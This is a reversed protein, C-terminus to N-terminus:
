AHFPSNNHTQSYIRGLATKELFLRQKQLARPFVDARFDLVDDTLFNAPVQGFQFILVLDDSLLLGEKFLTRGLIDAIRYLVVEEHEPKAEDVFVAVHQLYLVISTHFRYHIPVILGEAATNNRAVPSNM